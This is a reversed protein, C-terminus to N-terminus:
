DKNNKFHFIFGISKMLRKLLGNFNELDLDGSDKLLYLWYKTELCEKYAISMKVSFDAKSIARNAEVINAWVSTGSRLIQKSLIYERNEKALKKNLKVIWLALDYFKNQSPNNKLKM